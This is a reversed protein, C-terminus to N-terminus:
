RPLAAFDTNRRLKNRGAMSLRKWDLEYLVQPCLDRILSRTDKIIQDLPTRVQGISASCQVPLM